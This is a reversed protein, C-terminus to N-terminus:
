RVAGKLARLDDGAGVILSVAPLGEQSMGLALYALQFFDDTSPDATHRPPHSHWEGIYNVIGATRRQAETVAEVVGEIGREFSCETSRSDAPAPLADVVVVANIVLDHYGLIIGGTERPLNEKRLRHMKEIVSEDICLQMEDFKIRKEPSVPITQVQMSGDDANRNWVLIAPDPAAIRRRVQEALLAAHAMVATYPMVVSIDRCGAGSWFLGLNGDLHDHGWSNNIVARYYQAELTRLRVVREADELLLASGNAKPTLFVSAHRAVDDHQSALRPYELTTSADIVIDADQLAPLPKGDPYDCADATVATVPAAGRLVDQAKQVAADAKSLGLHRQDAPHRVLNHPKVHDNDVAVWVGWGSRVWLELLAGGLAGAGILTGRPGQEAIGSHQRALNRDLGHIVEIAMIALPRWGNQKGPNLFAATPQKYYRNQHVNLGGTLVGLKLLGHPVHYARRAFKEPPLGAERSIGMHLLIVTGTADQSAPTGDAGVRAHIADQLAQFLDVGRTKLMDALQGLTPPDPEIRGHVVAPLQLQVLSLSPSNESAPPREELFFTRGGSERNPGAFIEFAPVPNRALLEELNWPLILESSSVFFLQEVPQDAPHLKGRASKEIWMQIRSLLNEATWTRRVARYPEFYLCLSPPWGLPRANQHMLRPFGPRLGIVEVPEDEKEAVFLGLRERFELGTRNNPPVGHAKLDVVLIEIVGDTEMRSCRILTHDAHREVAAAIAQARPLRLDQPGVLPDGQLLDEWNEEEM